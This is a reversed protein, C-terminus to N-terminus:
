VYPTTPLTLHTYSVPIPLRAAVGPESAPPGPPEPVDEEEAAAPDAAARARRMKADRSADACLADTMRSSPSDPTSRRSPTLPNASATRRRASRFTLSSAARARASRSTRSALRLRFSGVALSRMSAFSLRM